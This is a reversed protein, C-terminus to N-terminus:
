PLRRWTPFWDQRMNVTLRQPSGGTLDAIYLEPLVTEPSHRIFIMGDGEPLYLPNTQYTEEQYYLPSLAHTTVRDRIATNLNMVRSVTSGSATRLSFALQDGDPSWALDQNMFAARFLEQTEQTQSDILYVVMQGEVRDTVTLYRGDPTWIPEHLEATGGFVHQLNEGDPEVLYVHRSRDDLVFVFSILSGDPSFRPSQAAALAPPTLERNTGSAVDAVQIGQQVSTLAGYALTRGDPSWVPLTYYAGTQTLQQLERTVIDYLYIHSDATGGDSVFALSRGDPSWSPLRSRAPGDFLAQTLDVSLRRDVDMLTIHWDDGGYQTVYTLQASASPLLPSLAQALLLVIWLLGITGGLRVLRGVFFYVTTPRQLPTL